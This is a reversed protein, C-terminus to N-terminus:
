KEWYEYQNENKERDLKEDKVLRNLAYQINQSSYKRAKKHDCYEVIENLKRKSTFYREKILLLCIDLATLNSSGNKTEKGSNASDVASKKGAKRGSKSPTVKFEPNGIQSLIEKAYDEGGVLLSFNGNDRVSIYKLAEKSLFNRFGGDALKERSMIENLEERSVSEVGMLKKAFFFLVALRKLLVALRKMKDNRSKEKLRNDILELKGAENEKFIKSIVGAYDESVIEAEQVSDFKDKITVTPFTQTKNGPLTLPKQFPNRPQIPHGSIVTNITGAFFAGVEDTFKASFSKSNGKQSFDFENIAKKETKQTSIISEGCNTCFSSAEQIVSKCIKCKVQSGCDKCFLARSLNTSKCNYCDIPQENSSEIQTTNGNFPLNQENAM